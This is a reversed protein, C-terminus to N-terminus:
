MPGTMMEAYGSVYPIGDPKKGRLNWVISYGVMAVYVYWVFNCAPEALYRPVDEGVLGDAVFEPLILIIDILIAQQANFRVNRSMDFNQLTGLSLLLFLGFGLLPTDHVKDSAPKLLLEDLFGLFPFRSYIYTGFQDGDLIPLLYPVCSKIRESTPIDDDNGGWMNLITNQKKTPRASTPPATILTTGIRSVQQPAPSISSMPPSSSFAYAQCTM